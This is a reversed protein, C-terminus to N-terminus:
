TTPLQSMNEIYLNIWEDTLYKIDKLEIKLNNANDMQIGNKLEEPLHDFKVEWDLEMLPEYNITNEM